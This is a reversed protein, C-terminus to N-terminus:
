IGDYSPKNEYKLFLQNNRSFDAAFVVVSIHHSAYRGCVHGYARIALVTVFVSYTYLLQVDLNLKRREGHPSRTQGVQKVSIM